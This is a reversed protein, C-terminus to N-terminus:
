VSSSKSHISCGEWGRLLLGDGSSGIWFVSAMEFGSRATKAYARMQISHPPM